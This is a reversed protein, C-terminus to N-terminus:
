LKFESLDMDQLDNKTASIKYNTLQHEQPATVVQQSSTWNRIWGIIPNSVNPFITQIGLAKSRVNCLWYIYQTLIKENLGILSGDKFLYKAWEIEEHATKKFMEVIYDKNRTAVDVFGESAVTSLIKIIQQICQVHKNEDRNILKIIEADGLLRKSEAFVYACCFSVYFQIGELMNVSVLLRFIRDKIDISSNEDVLDEYHNLTSQARQMIDKSESISDFIKSPDPYISNVIYTYSYSHITEQFQWVSFIPELMPNSIYNVLQGSIRQVCSDMLIQYSLNSRFIWKEHETLTEHDVRDKSLDIENPMWFSEIMDFFLNFLNPYLIKDYRQLSLSDGLFLPQRTPDIFKKNLITKM